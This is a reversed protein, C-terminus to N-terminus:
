FLVFSLYFICFDTCWSLTYIVIIDTTTKQNCM